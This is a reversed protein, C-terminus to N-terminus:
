ASRELLDRFLIAQHLFRFPQRSVNKAGLIAQHYVAVMEIGTKLLDDMRGTASQHGDIIYLSAMKYASAIM